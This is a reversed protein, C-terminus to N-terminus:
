PNAHKPPRGLTKSAEEAPEPGLGPLPLFPGLFRISSPVAPNALEAERATNNLFGFVHYYDKQTFPDYKHDHCQACELTTGLWVMGVTNVRDHVQNVRTEEPDSGAEVNTPASRNFGTAIRQALTANPLLDGAIQEISFRDYPM